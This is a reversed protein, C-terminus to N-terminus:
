YNGYKMSANTFQTKRSNIINELQKNNEAARVGRMDKLGKGSLMERMSKDTVMSAPCLSLSIDAYLPVTQGPHTPDKAQSKSLTFNMNKILLNEIAYVGGINLRLTGFLAIDLNRSDMKFGGPPTQVGCYEAIFKKVGDVLEGSKGGTLGDMAGTEELNQYRGFCYPALTDRIYDAVNVFEGKINYESFKTFKMEMQGTSFDSGNYYTFRTGQVFLSKNLASSAIGAYKGVIKKGTNLFKNLGSGFNDDKTKGLNEGLKELFPAYPKFSNFIDEIPNGGNFDTFRNSVGFTPDETLLCVAIPTKSYFITEKKDKGSGNSGSKVFPEYGEKFAEWKGDKTYTSPHLSMIMSEDMLQSDYYFGTHRVESLDEREKESNYDPNTLYHKHTEPNSDVYAVYTQENDKAAGTNTKSTDKEEM